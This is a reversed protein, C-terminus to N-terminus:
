CTRWLLVSQMDLTNPWTSSALLLAEIQAMKARQWVMPVPMTGVCLLLEGIETGHLVTSNAQEAKEAKAQAMCYEVISLFATPGDVAYGARLYGCNSCCGTETCWNKSFYVALSSSFLNAFKWAIGSPPNSSWAAPGSWTYKCKASPSYGSHAKEEAPKLM